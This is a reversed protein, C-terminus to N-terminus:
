TKLVPHEAQLDMLQPSQQTFGSSVNSDAAKGRSGLQFAEMDPAPDWPSHNSRRISPLSSPLLASATFNISNSPVMPTHAPDLQPSQSPLDTRSSSLSPNPSRIQRIALVCCTEVLSWGGDVPRFSQPTPTPQERSVM